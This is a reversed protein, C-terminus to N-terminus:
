EDVTCDVSNLLHGSEVLPKTSVGGLDPPGNELQAGGKIAAM